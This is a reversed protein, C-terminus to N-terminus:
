SRRKQRSSVSNRAASRDEKALREAAKECVERHQETTMRSWAAIEIILRGCGICMDSEDVRCVNICPSASTSRGM